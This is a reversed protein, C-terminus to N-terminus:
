TNQTETESDASTPSCIADGDVHSFKFYIYTIFVNCYIGSSSPFIINLVENREITTVNITSPIISDNSWSIFWTIIKELFYDVKIMLCIGQSWAVYNM